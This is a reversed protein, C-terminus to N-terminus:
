VGVETRDRRREIGGKSSRGVGYRGPRTTEGLVADLVPVGGASPGPNVEEWAEGAVWGAVVAPRGAPAWTVRRGIDPVPATPGRAEQRRQAAVTPDPRRRAPGGVVGPPM